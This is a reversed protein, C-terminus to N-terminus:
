RVCILRGSTSGAANVELFYSGAAGMTGPTNIIQTGAHDRSQRRMFLLRGSMGYMRVMVQSPRPIDVSFSIRDRTVSHLVLKPSVRGQASTHHGNVAKSPRPSTFIVGGTGAVVVQSDTGTVCLLGNATVSPLQRTWVEGDPSTLVAGRNGVAVFQTGVWAVGNLHLNSNDDGGSSRRNWDIGNDSVLIASDLKSWDDGVAVVRSGNWAIGRLSLHSDELRRTWAIGDPSTTIIGSGAAVLLNGTWVVGSLVGGAVAQETWVIGDPSTLIAGTGDGVPSGSTNHAGVAVLQTDALV